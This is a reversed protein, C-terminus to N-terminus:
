NFFKKINNINFSRHKSLKKYTISIDNYLHNVNIILMTDYCISNIPKFCLLVEKKIGIIHTGNTFSFEVHIKRNTNQRIWKSKGLVKMVTCFNKVEEDNLSKKFIDSEMVQKTFHKFKNM